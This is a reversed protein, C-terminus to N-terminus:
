FCKIDYIIRGSGLHRAMLRTSWHTAGHPTSELTATVVEEVQGDSVQRPAGPRPEDLLGTIAKGLFRRRWLAVTQPHCRLLAAVALNSQGQACQLVVRARFAVARSSRQRRALQELAQQDEENLFIAHAQRPM